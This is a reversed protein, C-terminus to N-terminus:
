RHETSTETSIPVWLRKRVRLRLRKSMQLRDADAAPLTLDCAWMPAGHRDFSILVPASIGPVVSALDGVQIADLDREVHLFVIRVQISGDSQRAQPLLVQAVASAAEDAQSRFEIAPQNRPEDGAAALQQAPEFDLEGHWFSLRDPREVPQQPEGGETHWRLWNSHEAINPVTVEERSEWFSDDLWWPPTQDFEDALNARWNGLLYSNRVSSLLDARAKLDRDWQRLVETTGCVQRALLRRGEDGGDGHLPAELREQVAIWVAWGDMRNRLHQSAALEEEEGTQVLEMYVEFETLSEIALWARRCLLECVPGVMIGPLLGSETGLHVDWIRCYGLARALYLAAEQSEPTWKGAAAEHLAQHGRIRRFDQQTASQLENM